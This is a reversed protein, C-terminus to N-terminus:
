RVDGEEEIVEEVVEGQPPPTLAEEQAREVGARMRVVSIVYILAVIAILVALLALNRGRRRRWVEESTRPERDRPDAM